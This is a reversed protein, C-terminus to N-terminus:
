GVGDLCSWGDYKRQNDDDGDDDDDDGRDTLYHESSRNSPIWLCIFNMSDSQPIQENM